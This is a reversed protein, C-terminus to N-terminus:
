HGSREGITSVVTCCFHFSGALDWQPRGSLLGRRDAARQLELLREVGRLAELGSSATVNRRLADFAAHFDRQAALETEREVSHFLAAGALLYLLLVPILLLFRCTDEDRRLQFQCSALFRSTISGESAAMLPPLSPPLSFLSYLVRFPFFSKNFPDSHPPVLPIFCVSSPYLNGFDRM